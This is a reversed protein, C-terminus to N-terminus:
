SNMKSVFQRKPSSGDSLWTERQFDHRRGTCQGTCQFAAPASRRGLANKDEPRTAMDEFGEGAMGGGWATAGRDGTRAEGGGVTGTGGAGRASAAASYVAIAM